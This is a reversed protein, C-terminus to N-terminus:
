NVLIWQWQLPQPILFIPLTPLSVFPLFKAHASCLIAEMQLLQQRLVARAGRSFRDSGLGDVTTRLLDHERVFFEIFNKMDEKLLDVEEVSRDASHRAAIAQRRVAVPVVLPGPTDSM